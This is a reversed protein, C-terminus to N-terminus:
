RAGLPRITRWSAATATTACWGAGRGCAPGDFKVSSGLAEFAALAPGDFKVSSGLAEFAALAPGDFKVSSGLAEFAALAPGDLFEAPIDMDGM